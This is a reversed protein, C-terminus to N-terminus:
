IVPKKRKEKSLWDVEDRAEDNGTAIAIDLQM